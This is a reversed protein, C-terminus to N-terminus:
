SLQPGESYTSIAKRAPGLLSCLQLEGARGLIGYAFIGSLGVKFALSQYSTKGPGQFSFM